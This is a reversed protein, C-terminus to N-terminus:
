REVSSPNKVEAVKVLLDRIAEGILLDKETAYMKLQKHTESDLKVTKHKINSKNKKLKKQM